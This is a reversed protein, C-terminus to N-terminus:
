LIRMQNVIPNYLIEIGGTKRAVERAEKRSRTRWADNRYISWMYRGTMSSKGVLFEGNKRIIVCTNLRVDM